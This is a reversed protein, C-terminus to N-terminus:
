ILFESQKSLFIRGDLPIGALVADVVFIDSRILAEASSTAGPSISM